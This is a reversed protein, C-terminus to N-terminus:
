PPGEAPRVPRTLPRRLFTFKAPINNDRHRGGQQAAYWAAALGLLLATATALAAVVSAKRAKDVADIAQAYAEDVRREAESQPLGTQMAVIQAVYQRDAGSLKGDSVAVTIARAIENRAETPSSPPAARVPGTSPSTAGTARDPGPQAQAIAQPRFMTDVAAAVITGRDPLAAKGVETGVQAATAAAVFAIIGGIVISVAWVLLGHIGDRFQVEDTNGGDWAGRMRGAIYGGVLFALIPVMLAWFAALSAAAKGYSHAPDPSLLSLGIASGATLLVFSIASAAVAGAFVASWEVYSSGDKLRAGAPSSAVVDVM